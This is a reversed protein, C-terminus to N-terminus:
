DDARRIEVNIDVGDGITKSIRCTETVNKFTALDRDSPNGGVSLIVNFDTYRGEDENWEANTEINMPLVPLGKRIVYQHLTGLSCMGLSILLYDIARRGVDNDQDITVPKGESSGEYLLAESKATLQVKRM